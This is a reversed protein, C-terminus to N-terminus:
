NNNIRNMTKRFAYEKAAEESDFLLGQKENIASVSYYADFYKGTKADKVRVKQIDCFLHDSSSRLESIRTALKMTQFQKLAELPTITEGSLLYNLIRQCQSESAKANPNENQM